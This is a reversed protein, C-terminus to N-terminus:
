MTRRTLKRLEGWKRQERKVASAEPQRRDGRIRVVIQNISEVVPVKEVKGEKELIVVARHVATYSMGAADALGRMTLPGHETLLEVISEHIHNAKRQSRCWIRLLGAIHNREDSPIWIRDGDLKILNRSALNTVIKITETRSFGSRKAVDNISGSGGTRILEQLVKCQRKGISRRQGAEM